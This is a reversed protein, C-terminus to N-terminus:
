RTDLKPPKLGVLPDADLEGEETLWAAFRRLALQRARGTAGPSFARVGTAYLRVTGEAKREARLHITWSEL